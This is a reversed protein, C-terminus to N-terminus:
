KNEGDTVPKVPEEAHLKELYERISDCEIGKCELSRKLDMSREVLQLQARRSTAFKDCGSCKVSWDNKVTITVEEAVAKCNITNATIQWDAM